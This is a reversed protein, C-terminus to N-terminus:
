RRIAYNISNTLSCRCQLEIVIINRKSDRLKKSEIILCIEKQIVFNRLNQNVNSDRVKRFGFILYVNM